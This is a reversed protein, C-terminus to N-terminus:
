LRTYAIDYSGQCLAAGSPARVTLAMTGSGSSGDAGWTVKGASRTSTNDPNACTADYSISCNDDSVIDEGACSQQVEEKAADSVVVVTEGSAGCNGTRLDARLRYTGSREKCPGGGGCGSVLLLVVLAMRM